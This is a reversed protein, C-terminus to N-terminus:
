IRFSRRWSTASRGCPRRCRPPRLPCTPRPTTPSRSMRRAGDAEDAVKGLEIRGNLGDSPNSSSCAPPLSWWTISAGAARPVALDHLVFWGDGSHPDLYSATVREAEAKVGRTRARFQHARRVLAATRHGGGRRARFKGDMTEQESLHYEGTMSPSRGRHASPRRRGAPRCPCGQGEVHLLPVHCSVM